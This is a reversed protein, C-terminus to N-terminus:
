VVTNVGSGGFIGKLVAEINGNLGFSGGKDYLGSFGGSKSMASILNSYAKTYNLEADRVHSRDSNVSITTKGLYEFTASLGFGVDVTNSRSSKTAGGNVSYLANYGKQSGESTCSGVGMMEVIGAEKEDPKAVDALKFAEGNADAGTKKAELCLQSTGEKKDEIISANVISDEDANIADAMKQQISKADDSDTIEISYEKTAEGNTGEITFKYTGAEYGTKNSEIADGMNKQASAMQRVEISMDEFKHGVKSMDDSQSISISDDSSVAKYANRKSAKTLADAAELYANYALRVNMDVGSKGGKAGKASAGQASGMNMSRQSLEGSRFRPASTLKPSKAMFAPFNHGQIKTM